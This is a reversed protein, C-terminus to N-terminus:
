VDRHLSTVLRRIFEDRMGGFLRVNLVMLASTIVTVVLAWASVGGGVLLVVAVTAGAMQAMGLLLRLVARM